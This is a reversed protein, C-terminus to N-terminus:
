GQPELHQSGCKGLGGQRKQTQERIVKQGEANFMSLCALSRRHPKSSGATHYIRQGADGGSGTDVVQPFAKRGM